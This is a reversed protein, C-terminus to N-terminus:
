LRVSSSSLAEVNQITGGYQDTRESDTLIRLEVWIAAEVGDYYDRAQSETDFFRESQGQARQIVVQFTDMKEVEDRRRNQAWEFLKTKYLLGRPASLQFQVLLGRM